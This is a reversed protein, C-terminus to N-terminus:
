AAKKNTQANLKKIQQEILKIQKPNNQFRAKLRSLKRYQRIISSDASFVVSEWRCTPCKIYIESTEDNMHRIREGFNSPCGCKPCRMKFNM